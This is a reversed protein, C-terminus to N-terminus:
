LTIKSSIIGATINGHFRSMSGEKMRIDMISSLRGGYRAPFGGKYLDVTKIADPNFISVYGGIHNVYYLPIDDLLILNQDQSGGRVFLGSTGEKGIFVGPMLQFARLIDSEGLLAPIQKIQGVPIQFLEYFNPEPADNIVIEYDHHPDGYEDYTLGRSYIGKTIFTKGPVTDTVELSPYGDMEVKITYVSDALPFTTESRYLGSGAHKLSETLQGNTYLFVNADAVTHAEQDFISRTRGIHVSILSDPNILGNLVLRKEIIGENFAIEKTCSFIIISVLIWIWSFLKKM